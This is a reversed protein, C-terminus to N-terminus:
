LHLCDRDKLSSTFLMIIFDLVLFNRMIRFLILINVQFYISFFTLIIYNFVYAYDNKRCNHFLCCFLMIKYCLANSNISLLQGM